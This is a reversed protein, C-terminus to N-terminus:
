LRFRFGFSRANMERGLRFMHNVDEQVATHGLDIRKIGLRLEGFSTALHQRKVIKLRFPFRANRQWRREFKRLMALAPYRYAIQKWRNGFASIIKRYNSRHM